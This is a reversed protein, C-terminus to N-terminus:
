CVSAELDGPEDDIIQLEQAAKQRVWADKNAQLAALCLQVPSNSARPMRNGGVYLYGLWQGKSFDEDPVPKPLPPFYAARVSFPLDGYATFHLIGPQNMARGSGSSGLQAKLSRRTKEIPKIKDFAARADLDVHTDPMRM